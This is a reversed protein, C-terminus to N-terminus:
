PEMFTISLSKATAPSVDVDGLVSPNAAAEIVWDASPLTDIDSASRVDGHFLRVGRRRLDDRNYESGPRIFNDISCSRWEPREELATRAVASGVFGCVGTILVKM